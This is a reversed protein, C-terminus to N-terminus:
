ADEAWDLTARRRRACILPSAFIHRGEGIAVGRLASARVRHALQELPLRGEKFAQHAVRIAVPHPSPARAAPLMGRLEPVPWGGPWGSSLTKPATPFNGPATKPGLFRLKRRIDHFHTKRNKKQKEPRTPRRRRKEANKTARRGNRVLFPSTSPAPLAM